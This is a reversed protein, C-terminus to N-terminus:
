SQQLPPPPEFEDVRQRDWPGRPLLDSRGLVRDVNTPFYPEGPGCSKEQLKLRIEPAVKLALEQEAPSQARAAASVVLVM